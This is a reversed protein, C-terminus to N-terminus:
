RWRSVIGVGHEFEEGGHERGRHQAGVTRSEERPDRGRRGLRRHQEVRDHRERRDAAHRPDLRGARHPGLVLRQTEDGVERAHGRRGAAREHLASGRRVEGRQGDRAVGTPPAGAVRVAAQLERDGVVGVRRHAVRHVEEVDVRERTGSTSSRRVPSASAAVSAVQSSGSTPTRLRRSRPCCSRRGPRRDRRCRARRRRASGTSARRRRTRRRRAARAISGGATRRCRVSRSARRRGACTATRVARSRRAGRDRDAAPAYPARDARPTGRSPSRRSRRAPVGAVVRVLEGPRARPSGNQNESATCPESAYRAATSRTSSVVRAAAARM